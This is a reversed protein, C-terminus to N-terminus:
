SCNHSIIRWFNLVALRLESNVPEQLFLTDCSVNLNCESQLTKYFVQL